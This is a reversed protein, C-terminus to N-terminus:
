LSFWEPKVGSVLAYFKGKSIVGAPCIRPVTFPDQDDSLVPRKGTALAARYGSQQVYDRVEASFEGAPYAFFPVERGLVSELEIKSGRIEKEWEEKPLKPLCPHSVTHAGIEIGEQLCIRAQEQDLYLGKGQPFIKEQLSPFIEALTKHLAERGYGFLVQNLRAVSYKKDSDTYLSFTQNAGSLDRFFVENGTHDMVAQTLRDWLLPVGRILPDNCVFMTPTINLTRLIPWAYDVVDRYGDDFTIVAQPTRHSNQRHVLFEELSVVPSKRKILMMQRQFLSPSISLNLFDWVPDPHIRHYFFIIGKYEPRTKVRQLLFLLGSLYALNWIFGKLNKSLLPFHSFEM